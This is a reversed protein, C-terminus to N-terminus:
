RLRDEALLGFDVTTINGTSFIEGSAMESLSTWNNVGVNNCTM